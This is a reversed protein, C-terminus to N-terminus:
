CTLGARPLLFCKPHDSSVVHARQSCISPVPIIAVLEYQCLDLLKGAIENPHLLCCSVTFGEKKVSRSVTDQRNRTALLIALWANIHQLDAKSGRSFPQRADEM